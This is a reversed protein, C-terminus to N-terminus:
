RLHAGSGPDDRRRMRWGSLLWPVIDIVTGPVVLVFVITVVAPRM